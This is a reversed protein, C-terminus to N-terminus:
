KIEIIIKFHLVRTFILLTTNVKVFRQAPEPWTSLLEEAIKSGTKQNFEQLLSKVYALDEKLELPLLEVM